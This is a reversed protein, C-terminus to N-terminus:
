GAPGDPDDTLLDLEALLRVEAPSIEDPHWAVVPAV